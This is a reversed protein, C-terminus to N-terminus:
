EDGTNRPERRKAEPQENVVEPRRRKHAVEDQATQYRRQDELARRLEDHESSPPIQHAERYEPDKRRAPARQASTSSSSEDSRGTATYATSPNFGLFKEEETSGNPNGTAMLPLVDTMKKKRSLKAVTVGIGGYGHQTRGTWLAGAHPAGKPSFYTDKVPHTTTMAFDFSHHYEIELECEIEWIGCVAAWTATTALPTNTQVPLVGFHILPPTYPAMM